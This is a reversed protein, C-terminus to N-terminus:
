PGRSARALDPQAQRSRASAAWLLLWVGVEAALVTLLFWSRGGSSDAVTMVLPMSRPTWAAATLCTEHVSLDFPRTPGCEPRETTQDFLHSVEAGPNWLVALSPVLALSAAAGVVVTRWSRLWIERRYRGILTVAVVVVPACYPLLLRPGWAYWGFPAWWASLALVGVVFGASVLLAGRRALVLSRDDHGVSAPRLAFVGLFVLSIAAGPWFWVIGVNPAILM